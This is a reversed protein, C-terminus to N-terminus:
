TQASLRGTSRRTLRWCTLRTACRPGCTLVCSQIPRRPPPLSDTQPSSPAFAALARVAQRRHPRRAGSALAASSLSLPESGRAAAAADERAERQLIDAISERDRIGTVVHSGRIAARGMIILRNVPNDLEQNIARGLNINRMLMTVVYPLRKLADVIVDMHQQSIRQMIEMDEKTLRAGWGVGSTDFPRQFLLSALLKFEPVGLECAHTAM